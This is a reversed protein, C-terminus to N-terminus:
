VITKIFNSLKTFFGSKSSNKGSLTKSSGGGSRRAESKLLGLVTTYRPDIYSRDLGPLAEPFGIRAQMRFIENALETAGSILSGGGVLVVGGGFSGGIGKSELNQKLLSFIEAMRPEIIKSLEVRPMQISPLGGIQPIIIKDEPKVSPIFCSGHECKIQEAVSKPKNLLYAIDNTVSNGGLDVGGVYCPSGGKYVIMNTINSGINILVTGMEKEDTGLVVEADALQELVLRSNNMGARQLSKKTASCVTQSGLVILARSELRHGSMNIPDKIGSKGDVSFDQVLTHLIFRDQALEFTRAVELSKFIDSSTIELGRTNIGIVGESQRGEISSGGVGAIISQVEVGAQLEAEQIVSNISKVTQEVNVVVGNRVGESPRECLTDIMLQGDKSLSGIAARIWSSGIDLGMMIKESAM